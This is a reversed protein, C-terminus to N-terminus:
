AVEPSMSASFESISWSNYKNPVRIFRIPGHNANVQKQSPDTSGEQLFNVM